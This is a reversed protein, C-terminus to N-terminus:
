VPRYRLRMPQGKSTLYAKIDPLRYDGYHVMSAILAADAKGHEFVDALHEPTGAGGSAVVPVPVAESIMRTLQLEYGAKTGDADISNLVIEGAGLAVAQQAWELADRDTPTRGGDVVVRYGSPCEPDRAADMGLVICQRGFQGAGQEIIAPNRVAQSNLSVKEAGALLVARMDEINRLGGGVCFPVFIQEAVREVVDLMIGRKEASATIDYFVLEDVGDDYYQRAMEIPDGIDINGKFKVGKTTKGERVDLCVIIRKQLM